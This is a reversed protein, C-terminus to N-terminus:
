TWAREDPVEGCVVVVGYRSAGGVRAIDIGSVASAAACSVSYPAADGPAKPAQVSIATMPLDLKWALPPVALFDSTVVAGCERLREEGIADAAANLQDIM